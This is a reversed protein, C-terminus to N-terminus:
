RSQPQGLNPRGIQTQSVAGLQVTDALTGSYAAKALEVARQLIDEHLIPDLECEQAKTYPNGFEDVGLSVDSGTFDELIIPRPRKIYRIVYRQISDNNGAIIEARRNGSDTTLLKWAQYQAPRKYPKTQLQSFTVYDIPLVTLQVENYKTPDAQKRHVLVFENLVILADSPFEISKVSEPNNYNVAVNVTGMLAAGEYSVGKIINSFDAQRIPSADFGELVSNSKPNFYSLLIDNQAKTLFVSKEYENLGPAQNSSVNNYLLDFQNSFQSNIM